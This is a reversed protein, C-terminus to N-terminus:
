GEGAGVVYAPARRKAPKDAGGSPAPAPPAPAATPAPSPVAAVPLEQDDAPTASRPSVVRVAPRRRAASRRPTRAKPARRAKAPRKAKPKRFQLERSSSGLAPPEAALRSVKDASSEAAPQEAAAPTARSVDSSGVVEGFPRGGSLIWVVLVVVAGLAAGAILHVLWGKTTGSGHMQCPTQWRAAALDLPDATGTTAPRAAAARVM